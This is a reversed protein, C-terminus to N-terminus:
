RVWQRMLHEGCDMKVFKGMLLRTVLCFVECGFLGSPKQLQLEHPKPPYNSRMRGFITLKKKRKTRKEKKKGRSAKTDTDFEELPIIGSVLSEM